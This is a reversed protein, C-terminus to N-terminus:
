QASEMSLRARERGQQEWNSCDQRNALTGTGMCADLVRKLYVTDDESIERGEAQAMGLAGGIYYACAQRAGTSGHWVTMQHADFYRTGNGIGMGTSELRFLGNTFMEVRAAVERVTAATFKVPATRGDTM